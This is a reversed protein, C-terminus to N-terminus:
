KDNGVAEIPVSTEVHGMLSEAEKGDVLFQVSKVEEFSQTLTYVVQDVFLIETLSGGDLNESSIDVRAVGSNDVEANLFHINESIVTSYAEDEPPLKLANLAAIYQGGPVASVTSEMPSMLEGNEGDQGEMVFVTSAFYLKVPYDLAQSETESGKGSDTCGTMGVLILTGILLLLIWKKMRM